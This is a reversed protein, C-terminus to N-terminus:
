GQEAMNRVHGASAWDKGRRDRQKGSGRPPPRDRARVSRARRAEFALSRREIDLDFAPQLESPHRKRPSPSPAARISGCVPSSARRRLMISRPPAVKWPRARTVPSGSRGTRTSSGAVTNSRLAFPASARSLSKTVSRGATGISSAL